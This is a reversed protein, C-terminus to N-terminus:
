CTAAQPSAFNASTLVTLVDTLAQRDVSGVICVRREDPLVIEIRQQTGASPAIGIPSGDATIRVPVLGARRPASRPALSKSGEADRQALQRRWWYFASERLNHQGCWAKVPLGSSRHGEVMRRWFSERESKTRSDRAM